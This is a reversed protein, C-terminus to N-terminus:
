FKWPWPIPLQFPLELKPPQVNPAPRRAKTLSAQCQALARTDMAARLEYHTKLGFWLAAFALGVTVVTVWDDAIDKLGPWIVHGLTYVLAQSVAGAIPALVAAIVPLFGSWWALGLGGAALWPWWDLLTQLM